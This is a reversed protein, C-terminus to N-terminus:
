QACQSTVMQLRGHPSLKGYKQYADYETQFHLTKLQCSLLLQALTVAPKGAHGTM